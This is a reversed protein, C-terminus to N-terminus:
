QAADLDFRRPRRLFLVTQWPCRFVPSHFHRTGSGPKAARPFHFVLGPNGVKGGGSAVIIGTGEGSGWFGLFSIPREGVEEQETKLIV